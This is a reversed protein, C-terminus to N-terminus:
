DRLVLPLYVRQAACQVFVEEGDLFVAGALHVRGGGAQDGAVLYSILVPDALGNRYEERDKLDLNPFDQHLALPDYPITFTHGSPVLAGEDLIVGPMRITYSVQINSLDAPLSVEIPVATVTIPDTPWTLFGPHPSLVPLCPTDGQVVYFEYRGGVAGLVSGTNHGAPALGTSPVPRDHEVQVDVTWVGPENVPFDDGQNYYWGVKNARGSFPLVAGSPSTVAVTVASNLPPGVHGCFAFTDGTQLIDGPQVCRPMFFLDIEEGKLTMLPGGNPGGAAGQFPPTVRPGLPDDGAIEVWLSGYIGYENIPQTESILRFVAGGFEWKIDNPLDGERGVQDGYNAGFRWYVTGHEAITEHVRAGPRQSTRYAYAYQDIKDPAWLADSGDSTTSVLPAEHSLLQEELTEHPPLIVHAGSNWRDQVIQYIQEGPTTDQFTIIPAISDGATDTYDETEGGWFIDGSYYPYYTHAAIVPLDLQMLHFFWLLDNWNPIDIGRHGHAILGPNEGEVVNGWTIQGMWLTGEEDVYTANVEVRFEGPDNFRISTGAPLQLYGFRNAQGVLDYEQAQAPDSYPLHRLYINLNAPVPPYVQLGAAFADDVEYPTTPLQGTEIRLPRAVYVDFTASGVYVHGWIDELSGSLTIVHHGYQEFRYTFQDDLAILQYVDHLATGDNDRLQAEPFAPSHSTSQQFPAPGLADVSGDPKHVEVLLQGSPFVFPVLPPNPVGRDAIAVLPLYPELRYALPEGTRADFRPVILVHSQFVTLPVIGYSDRDERAVTGRAGNYLTDTLLTWLLRPTAPEGVRLIPLYNWGFPWCARMLYMSTNIPGLPIGVFHLSLHPRYYGPQTGSPILLTTSITAQLRHDGALQWGTVPGVTSIPSWDPSERSIPLGTPAMLNSIFQQHVPIQRGDQDFLRRLDFRATVDIAGLDIGPTIAPTNVILTGSIPYVTHTGSIIAPGLTGALTWYGEGDFMSVLGALGFPISGGSGSHNLPVPLITGPSGNLWPFALEVGGPGLAESLPAHLAAHKIQIASGPPALVTASFSGDAEAQLFETVTTELDSIAVLAEPAVSGAAGTVLTYGDADPQGVTILAAIPPDTLLTIPAQEEQVGRPEVQLHSQPLASAAGGPTVVIILLLMLALGLGTTLAVFSLRNKWSHM